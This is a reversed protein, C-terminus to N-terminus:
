QAHKSTKALGKGNNIKYLAVQCRPLKEPSALYQIEVFELRSFFTVVIGYEPYFQMISIETIM